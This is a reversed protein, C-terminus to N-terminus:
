FPLDDLSDDPVNAAYKSVPAQKGAKIYKDIVMRAEYGGSAKSMKLTCDGVGHLIDQPNFEGSDSYLHGLGIANLINEIKWDTNVTLSEYLVASGGVSDTVSVAVNLKPNGAMDKLPMGDKTKDYIGIIKFKAAGSVLVADVREERVRHNFRFISM